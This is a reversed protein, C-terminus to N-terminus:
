SLYKNSNLSLMEEKNCEIFKELLHSIFAGVPIKHKTKIMSFVEMVDSDIYTVSKLRYKKLKLNRRVDEFNMAFNEPSSINKREESLNKDQKKIIEKSSM